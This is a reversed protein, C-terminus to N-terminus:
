RTEGSQPSSSPTTQQAPAVKARSQKQKNLQGRSPVVPVSKQTSTSIDSSVFRLRTGVYTPGAPHSPPEAVLVLEDAKWQWDLVTYRKDSPQVVQLKGDAWKYKGSFVSSGDSLLFLGDPLATLTIGRQAGSLMNMQWTGPQPAFWHPQMSARGGFYMAVLATIILLSKLSFSLWHRSPSQPPPLHDDGATDSM